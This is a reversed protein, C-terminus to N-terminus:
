LWAFRIQQWFEIVERFLVFGLARNGCSIRALVSTGPRLSQGPVQNLEAVAHCVTKGDKVQIVNELTSLETEWNQEPRSRIMYRVQTSTQMQTRAATVYNLLHSPISLHLQWAPDEPVIELLRQGRQVPRSHLEQQPDPRFVTGSFPARISLAEFQRALLQQQERLNALRQALQKEDGSLSADGGTLRGVNVAALKSKTTEIEGQLQQQQLELDANSMRLLVVQGVVQAENAFLVEDITGDDPAFIHRQNASVIQGPVEVEFRIPILVLAIALLGFGLIWRRRRNSLPPNTLVRSLLPRQKAYNRAIPERAAHILQQLTSEDPGASDNFLEVLVATSAENAVSTLSAVRVHSVGSGRLCGIASHLKDDDSLNDVHLWTSEQQILGNTLTQTARVSESNADPCRVGTMAETHFLGDRKALVSIRCPGLIAPGDQALVSAASRLSTAQHLGTILETFAAHSHFRSEYQSLLHRSVFAAVLGTVAQAGEILSSPRCRLEAYDTEIVLSLTEALPHCTYLSNRPVSNSAETLLHGNAAAQRVQPSEEASTIQTRGDSTLIELSDPRVLWQQLQIDSVLDGLATTALKILDSFALEGASAVELQQLHAEFETLWSESM